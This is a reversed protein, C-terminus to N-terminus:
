IGNIIFQILMQSIPHHQRHNRVMLENMDNMNNIDNINISDMNNINNININDMNNIDNINSIVDIDFELELKPQIFEQPNFYMNNNNNDTFEFGAA